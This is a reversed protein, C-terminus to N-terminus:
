SPSTPVNLAHFGFPRTVRTASPVSRWRDPFFSPLKVTSWRLTRYAPTTCSEPADTCPYPSPPLIVAELVQPTPLPYRNPPQEPPGPRSLRGAAACRPALLALGGRPQQFHEAEKVGKSSSSGEEGCGASAPYPVALPPFIWLPHNKDFCAIRPTRANSSHDLVRRGTIPSPTTIFGKGLGEVASDYFTALSPRPPSRRPPRLPTTEKWLPFPWLGIAARALNM